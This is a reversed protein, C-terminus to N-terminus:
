KTQLQTSKDLNTGLLSFLIRTSNRMPSQVSIHTTEQFHVFTPVGYLVFNRKGALFLFLIEGHSFNVDIWYDRADRLTLVPM